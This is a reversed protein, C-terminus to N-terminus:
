AVVAAPAAPPPPEPGRDSGSGVVEWCGSSLARAAVRLDWECVGGWVGWPDRGALEVTRCELLVPCGACLRRAEARRAELLYAPPEVTVSPPYHEATPRGLCPRRQDGTVLDRLRARDRESRPLLDQVSAVVQAQVEDVRVPSRRQDLGVVAREDIPPRVDVRDM